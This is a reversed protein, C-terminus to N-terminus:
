QILAGSVARVLVSATEPIMRNQADSAYSNLNNRAKDEILQYIKRHTSVYEDLKEWTIDSSNSSIDLETGDEAVLFYVNNYLWIGDLARTIDQLGMNQFRVPNSSTGSQFRHTTVVTRMTQISIGEKLQTELIPVRKEELTGSRSMSRTGSPNLANVSLQEGITTAYSDQDLIEGSKVDIVQWDGQIDFRYSASLEVGSIGAAVEKTHTTFPKVERSTEGTIYLLLDVGQDQALSVVQDPSMNISTQITGTPLLKANASFARNASLESGIQSALNGLDDAVYIYFSAESTEWAQNLYYNIHKYDSVQQRVIDLHQAALRANAFGGKQLLVIGAQYRDELIADRAAQLPESYDQVQLNIDVNGAADHIKKLREYIPTITEYKFEQDSAKLKEIEAELAITAKTFTKELLDIADDYRPNQELASAASEAATVYDGAKYAAEGARYDGGGKTFLTGCSVSLVTLSIIFCMMIRNKGRCM